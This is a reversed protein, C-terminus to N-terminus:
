LIGGKSTLKERLTRLAKSIHKKVTDPSIGLSEAVERYTRHEYYCMRLVTRTPEGLADAVAEAQRLLREHERYDNSLDFRTAERVADIHAAEVQRHKLRNLVANRVATYLWPIRRVPELTDFQRWAQEMVEGVVDRAEEGDGLLQAAYRVLRPYQERFLQGFAEEKADKRHFLSM